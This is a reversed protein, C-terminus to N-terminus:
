MQTGAKVLAGAQRWQTSLADIAKGSETALGDSFLTVKYGRNLAGMTTANVCYAADLGVLILQDVQNERLYSDLAPNAFADARNKTFTTTGLIKELRQDMETGPSGPANIGGVLVAVLPNDIINQIFVVKVGKEKAQAILANSAAVIRDGDRYRKKAQPGTYDEQIDIVLLAPRPDQYAGIKPGTTPQMSQYIVAFVAILAVFILGVTWLLIKKWRKM